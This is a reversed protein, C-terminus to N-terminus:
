GWKQHIEPARAGRESDLAQACTHWIRTISLSTLHWSLAFPPPSPTHLSHQRGRWGGLQLLGAGSRQINWAKVLAPFGCLEATIGLSFKFRLRAKPRCICFCPYKGFVCLLYINEHPQLYTDLVTRTWSCLPLFTQSQLFIFIRCKCLPCQCGKSSVCKDLADILILRM